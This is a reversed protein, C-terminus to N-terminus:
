WVDIQSVGFGVLWALWGGACPNAKVVFWVPSPRNGTTMMSTLPILLLASISEPALLQYTDAFSISSSRM